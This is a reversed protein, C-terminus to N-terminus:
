VGGRCVIKFPHIEVVPEIFFREDGTAGNIVTPNDEFPINLLEQFFRKFCSCVVLGYEVIQISGRRSGVSQNKKGVEETFTSRDPVTIGASCKKTNLRPM